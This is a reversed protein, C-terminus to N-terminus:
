CVGRYERVLSPFLGIPPLIDVDWEMVGKIKAVDGYDPSYLRRITARNQGLCSNWWAEYREVARATYVAWRKEKVRIQAENTQAGFLERQADPIGFLDPTSAITDRLDSLVALFKLHAIVQDRTVTTSIPAGASPRPNIRPLEHHTGQNTDTAAPTYAPPPDIEDITNVPEKSKSM